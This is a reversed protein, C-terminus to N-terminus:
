RKNKKVSLIGMLRVWNNKIKTRNDLIYKVIIRIWIIAIIGATLIVSINEVATSQKSNFLDRLFADFLYRFVLWIVIIIATRSIGSLFSNNIRQFDKMSENIIRKVSEWKNNYKLENITERLIIYRAMSHQRLVRRLGALLPICALLILIFICAIIDLNTFTYDRIIYTHAICDYLIGFSFGIYLASITSGLLHILDWRRECYILSNKNKSLRHIHDSFFLLEDLDISRLELEDKLFRNAKTSVGYKGLLFHNFIIYWIQSVLFGIPSGSLLALLAVFIEITQSSFTFFLTHWNVFFFIALFIYGPLAYRLNFFSREAM